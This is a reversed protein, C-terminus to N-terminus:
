SETLKKREAKTTLDYTGCFGNCEVLPKPQRGEMQSLDKYEPYNSHPLLFVQFRGSAKAESSQDKNCTVPKGANNTLKHEMDAMAQFKEPFERQMKQWYGLGAQVCGTQLCNNNHFGMKYAAPIEIGEIEVIRFCDKKTYAYMLLPFIPKTDPYNLALAKARNMEKADFGFVQHAYENDRQWAERVRTKLEKSCIAGRAVNM